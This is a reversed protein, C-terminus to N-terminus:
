PHHSHPLIKTSVRIPMGRRIPNVERVAEPESVHGLPPIDSSLLSLVFSNRARMLIWLLSKNEYLLWGNWPTKWKVFYVYRFFFRWFFYVSWGQNKKMILGHSWIIWSSSVMPDACDMSSSKGTEWHGLHQSSNTFIGAGHLIHNWIGFSGHHQYFFALMVPTYQHYGHQWIYCVNIRHTHTLGQTRDFHWDPCSVHATRFRSARQRESGPNKGAIGLLVVCCSPKGEWIM